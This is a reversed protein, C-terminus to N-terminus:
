LIMARFLWYGLYLLWLIILLWYDIVLVAQKSNPYQHNPITQNNSIPLQNNEYKAPAVGVAPCSQKM